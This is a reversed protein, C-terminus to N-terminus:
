KGGLAIYANQVAIFREHTGGGDPHANKVALRYIQEKTYGLMSVGAEKELVTKANRLIGERLQDATLGALDPKVSSEASPLQKFGAYAEGRAGVGYLASLRLHQLHYAIARLNSEWDTFHDCPFSLTGHKTGVTLVVGPHTPRKANARIGGDQRLDAESQLALQVLINRGSLHALEKGLMELTDSLPMIKGDKGRYVSSERRSSSTLPVPFQQMIVTKYNM